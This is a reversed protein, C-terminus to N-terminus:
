IGSASDIRFSGISEVTSAGGVVFFFLAIEAVKVGAEDVERRMWSASRLTSGDIMMSGVDEANM